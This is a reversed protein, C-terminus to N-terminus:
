SGSPAHGLISGLSDAWLTTIGNFLTGTGKYNIILTAIIVGVVVLTAVGFVKNVM